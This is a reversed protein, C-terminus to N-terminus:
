WSGGAGGAKSDAADPAALEEPSKRPGGLWQDEREAGKVSLSEGRALAPGVYMLTIVIFVLLPVGGLLAIAHLPDVDPKPEWGGPRPEPTDASAAGAGVVLLALAAVILSCM